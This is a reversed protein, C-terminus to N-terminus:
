GKDVPPPPNEQQHSIVSRNQTQSIAQHSSEHVDDEMVFDVVNTSLGEAGSMGEVVMTQCDGSVNVDTIIHYQVHNISIRSSRTACQVKTLSRISVLVFLRNSTQSLHCNTCITGYM